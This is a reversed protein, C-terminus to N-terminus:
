LADTPEASAFGGQGRATISGSVRFGKPTHTVKFTIAREAGDIVIPANAVFRKTNGAKTVGQKLPLVQGDVTITQPLSPVLSTSVLVGGSRTTPPKGTSPDLIANITVKEGNKKQVVHARFPLARGTSLDVDIVDTNHKM